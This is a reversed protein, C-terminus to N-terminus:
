CWMASSVRSKSWSPQWPLGKWPRRQPSSILSSNPELGDLLLICTVTGAAGMWETEPAIRRHVLEPMVLVLEYGSPLLAAALQLMPTIHGQAPYPVLIVKM